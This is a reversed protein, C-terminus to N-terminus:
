EAEWTDLGPLVELNAWSGDSDTGFGCVFLRLRISPPSQKGLKRHGHWMCMIQDRAASTLHIEAIKDPPSFLGFQWEKLESQALAATAIQTRLSESSPFTDWGQAILSNFEFDFTGHQM